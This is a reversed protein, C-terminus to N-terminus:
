CSRVRWLSGSWALRARGRGGDSLFAEQALELIRLNLSPLWTHVARVARCGQLEPRAAPLNAQPM